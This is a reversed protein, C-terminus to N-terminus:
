IFDETSRLYESSNHLVPTTALEEISIIAGWTTMDETALAPALFLQPPPMLWDVGRLRYYIINLTLLAAISSLVNELNADTFNSSRQHKVNNNAVWWSPSGTKLEKWPELVWHSGRLRVALNPLNTIKTNLVGRYKTIDSNRKKFTQDLNVCVEKLLTDCESSSTLLLRALEISHTDKNREELAIYRALSMVDHELALFYEWYSREEQSPILKPPSM